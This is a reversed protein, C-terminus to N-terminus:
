KKNQLIYETVRAADANFILERPFETEEILLQSVPTKGILSCYHADTDVVVPAEIRKCIKLLEFANEKSGPKRVISSENIEIFKGSDRCAKAVTEFDIPYDRTTCHGIANVAKNKLLNLYMQTNEEKTGPKLLPMHCSAVVWEINKLDFETMDIDGEFSMVDAEVGKFVTVGEIERPLVHINHFHWVHPADPMAPAHDTVAFAKIGNEAASQAMEKVTSYAHSSALTHCHLDAEILM